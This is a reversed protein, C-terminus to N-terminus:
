VLDRAASTLRAVLVRIEARARKISIPPAKAEGIGRAKLQAPRQSLPGDPSKHDQRQRSLLIELAEKDAQAQLRKCEACM